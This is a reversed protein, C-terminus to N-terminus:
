YKYAEKLQEKLQHIEKQLKANKMRLSKIIVDKSDETRAGQKVARCERIKQAIIENRYLYSKSAKAKKSVAYFSVCEGSKVMNGIIQLVEQQRREAKEKALAVIAEEKKPM